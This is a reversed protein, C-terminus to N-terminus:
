NKGGLKRKGYINGILAGVSFSLIVSCIVDMTASNLFSSYCTGRACIYHSGMKFRYVIPDLILSSIITYGTTIIYIFTLVGFFVTGMIGGRLWYPWDKWAM